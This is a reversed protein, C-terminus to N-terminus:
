GRRKPLRNLAQQALIVIREAQKGAEKYDGDSRANDWLIFPSDDSCCMVEADIKEWRPIPCHKKCPEYGHTIDRQDKYECCPCYAFMRPVDGGHIELRPWDEKDKTPNKALWKWWEICISLADRKTLKLWRKPVHM